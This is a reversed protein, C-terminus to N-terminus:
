QIYNTSTYNWCCGVKLADHSRLKKIAIESKVRNMETVEHRNEEYPIHHGRTAYHTSLVGSVKGLKDETEM